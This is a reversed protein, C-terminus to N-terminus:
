GNRPSNAAEFGRFQANPRDVSLNGPRLRAQTDRPCGCGITIRVAQCSMWDAPVRQMSLMKRRHRLVVLLPLRSLDGVQLRAGKNHNEPRKGGM